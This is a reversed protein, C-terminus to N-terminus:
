GDTSVFMWGRKKWGDRPRRKKVTSKRQNNNSYPRKPKAESTNVSFELVLSVGFKLSGIPRSIRKPGLSKTGTEHGHYSFMFHRHHPM